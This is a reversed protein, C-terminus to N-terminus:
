RVPTVSVDVVGTLHSGAASVAHEISSSPIIRHTVLLLPTRESPILQAGGGGSEGEESCEDGEM